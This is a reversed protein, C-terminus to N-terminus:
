PDSQTAQQHAANKFLNKQLANKLVSIPSSFYDSTNNLSRHIAIEKTQHMEYYFRYMPDTKFIFLKTQWTPRNLPIPIRSM